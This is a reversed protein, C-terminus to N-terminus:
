FHSTKPALRLWLCRLLISQKIARVAQRTQKMLVALPRLLFLLKPLSASTAPVYCVKLSRNQLSKIDITEVQQWLVNLFCYKNVKKTIDRNFYTTGNLTIFM